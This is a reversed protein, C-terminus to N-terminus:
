PPATALVIRLVAFLNLKRVEAKATADVRTKAAAGQAVASAAPKPLSM